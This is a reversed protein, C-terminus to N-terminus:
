GKHLGALAQRVRGGSAALLREAEERAIGGKGMVIATRVSM